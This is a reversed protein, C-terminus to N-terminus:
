RVVSPIRSADLAIRIPVCRATTRSARTARDAPLMGNYPLGEHGGRKSAIEMIVAARSPDGGNRVPSRWSRGQKRLTVVM